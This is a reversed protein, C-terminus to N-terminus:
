TTTPPKRFSPWNCEIIGGKERMRDALSPGLTAVFDAQHRNDIILTNKMANYRRNVLEFLMNNEWDTEARKGFEDIVLLSPKSYELLREEESDNSSKGYSAKMAIFFGVATTFLAVRESATVLMMLEVGFQTKGSGREGCLGILFGKRTNLEKILHAM